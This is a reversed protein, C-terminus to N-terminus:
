RQFIALVAKYTTRSEKKISLILILTNTKKEESKKKKKEKWCKTLILTMIRADGYVSPTKTVPEQQSARDREVTIIAKDFGLAWLGDGADKLIPVHDPAGGDGATFTHAGGTQRKGEESLPRRVSFLHAFLCCQNGLAAVASYWWTTVKDAPTLMERDQLCSTWPGPTLLAPESPPSTGPGEGPKQPKAQRPKYFCCGCM